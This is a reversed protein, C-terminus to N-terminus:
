GKVCLQGHDHTNMYIVILWLRDVPYTKGEKKKDFRKNLSPFYLKAM